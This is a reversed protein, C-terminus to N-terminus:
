KQFIVMYTDLIMLLMKGNRITYIKGKKYRDDIEVM